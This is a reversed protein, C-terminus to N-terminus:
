ENPTRRKVVRAPVGVVTTWPEVDSIVVSGAGIVSNHGIKLQGICVATSGFFVSDEVVVDGNISSNTSIHTHNGVRCKHEILAKTNIVNNDGIVAGANVIALKGIFNGVGISAAPSIIATKDIVNIVHLDLELLKKFWLERYGVDGISVFYYYSQYEPVDTIDKGLIPLGMHYGSKNSDIFGVLKYENKDLSDAVSEAHGGAGIMILKEM